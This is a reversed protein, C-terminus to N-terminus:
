KKGAPKEQGTLLKFNSVLLRVVCMPIATVDSIVLFKKGEVSENFNVM